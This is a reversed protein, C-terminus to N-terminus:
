HFLLARSNVPHLSYQNPIRWHAMQCTASLWKGDTEPVFADEPIMRQGNVGNVLDSLTSGPRLLQHQLQEVDGMRREHLDPDELQQSRFHLPFHREMVHRRANRAPADTCQPIPCHKGRLGTKSRPKTDGIHGAQLKTNTFVRSRGLDIEEEDSGLERRCSGSRDRVPDTLKVGQHYQKFRASREEMDRRSARVTRSEIAPLESAYHATVLLPELAPAHRTALLPEEVPVPEMEEEDSIEIIESEMKVPILLPQEKPTETLVSPTSSKEPILLQQDKSKDSLVSTSSTECRSQDQTVPLRDEEMPEVKIPVEAMASGGQSVVETRTPLSVDTQLRIDRTVTVGEAIHQRQRPRYDLNETLWSDSQHLSAHMRLEKMWATNKKKKAIQYQAVMLQQILENDVSGLQVHLNTVLEKASPWLKKNGNMELVEDVFTPFQTM